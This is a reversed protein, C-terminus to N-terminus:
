WVPVGARGNHDLGLVLNELGCLDFCFGFGGESRLDCKFIGFFSSSEGELGANRQRGTLLKGSEEVGGAM